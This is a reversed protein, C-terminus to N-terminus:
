EKKSAIVRVALLVNKLPCLPVRDIPLNSSHTLLHDSTANWSLRVPDQDRIQETSSTYVLTSWNVVYLSCGMHQLGIRQTGRQDVSVLSRLVLCHGVANLTDETRVLVIDRTM